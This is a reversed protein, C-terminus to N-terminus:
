NFRRVLEALSGKSIYVSEQNARECLTAAYLELWQEIMINNERQFVGSDCAVIYIRVREFQTENADNIYGGQADYSTFGKFVRALKAAIADHLEALGIGDNDKLPLIIKYELM